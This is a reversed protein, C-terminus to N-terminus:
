PWWRKIPTGPMQAIAHKNVNLYVVDEGLRKIDSIPITVDKQGWLHGERLVLHTIHSNEPNVLFEDVHGIRGDTAEVAAGRHIGLEGQPIDEIPVAMPGNEAMGYPWMYVAGPGTIEPESLYEEGYADLYEVHTFPKLHALEKQSCRLVIKHPTSEVILDVPVMQKQHIFGETRVVLHTIEKTVPNRLVCDSRGCVQEDSCTVEVNLPIDM